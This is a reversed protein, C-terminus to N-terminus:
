LNMYLTTYDGIMSCCPNQVSSMQPWGTVIANRFISWGTFWEHDDEVEDGPELGFFAGDGPELGFFVGWGWTRPRFNWGGFGVLWWCSRAVWGGHLFHDVLRTWKGLYQVTCRPFLVVQPGPRAAPGQLNPTIMSSFPIMRFIIPIYHSYLPHIIPSYHTFITHNQHFLTAKM